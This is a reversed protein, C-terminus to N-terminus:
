LTVLSLSFKFISNGTAWHTSDRLPGGSVLPYGRYARVYHTVSMIDSMRDTAWHTSDRPVGSAPPYGGVLWRTCCTAAVTVRIDGYRSIQLLEM